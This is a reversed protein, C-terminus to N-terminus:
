CRLDSKRSIWLRLRYIEKGLIIIKSVKFGTKWFDLPHLRYSIKRYRLHLFNNYHKKPNLLIYFSHIWWLVYDIRSIYSIITIPKQIYLVLTNMLFNISTYILKQLIIIRYFSSINMNYKVTMILLYINFICNIEQVVTFQNTPRFVLFPRGENGIQWILPNCTEEKRKSNRRWRGFRFRM